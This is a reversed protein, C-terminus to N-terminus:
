RAEDSQKNLLINPYYCNNGRCKKRYNFTKRYLQQTKQLFNERGINKNEILIDRCSSIFQVSRLREEPTIQRGVIKVTKINTRMIDYLACAGCDTCDKLQKYFVPRVMSLFAKKNLTARFAEVSYKLACADTVESADYTTLIEMREDQLWDKKSIDKKKRDMYSHLFTCFGDIFVCLTNLVFVEFDIEPYRLPIKQMAKLSIQRDLIIRTAGLNKYFEVSQSNFVTGGTSIHIEKSTKLERLTLLLGIDAVIYADLDTKELERIIKILFSYQSKVYLGNVTLYVPTNKKHALEIARKLKKLDTFNSGVGGKREFELSTYKRVWDASLYGCYFEDAGSEILPIIEEEGRFPATIKFM